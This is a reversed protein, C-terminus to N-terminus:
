SLLPLSTDFPLLGTADDVDLGLVNLILLVLRETLVLAVAARFAVIPLLLLPSLNINEEELLF